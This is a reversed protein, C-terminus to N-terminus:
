KATSSGFEIKSDATVRRFNSNETSETLTRNLLFLARVAFETGYSAPFWIDKDVRMYAVNFGLGPVDTGLLTRVAFPLQRSLRTYVSVPQFEEEDILAEGTWGYDKRDAPQFRIQYAPREHVVREGVREFLYKKQEESTLPFLDKDLGDRTGNGDDDLVVNLLSVQPVPEGSFEQYKGNKWYRGHVSVLKKESGKPQPIVTYTWFEERLLHGNKRRMIRHIRQEYVFQNRAMQERDQNEAVRKLIEAPPLQLGDGYATFSAVALIGLLLMPM